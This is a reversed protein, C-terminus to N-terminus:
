DVRRLFEKLTVQDPVRGTAQFSDYLLSLLL